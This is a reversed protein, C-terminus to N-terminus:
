VAATQSPSHRTRTRTQPSNRAGRTVGIDNFVDKFEGVEKIKGATKNELEIAGVRELIHLQKCSQLGLITVEHEKTIIFPLVHLKGKPRVSLSRKGVVQLLQGGYSRVCPGLLLPQRRHTQYVHQPLVNCTAGTDIKFRVERGQVALSIYWQEVHGSCLENM